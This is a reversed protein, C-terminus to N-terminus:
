QKHLTFLTRQSALQKASLIKFYGLSIGSKVFAYSLTSQKDPFVTNIQDPQLEIEILEEYSKFLSPIVDLGDIQINEM